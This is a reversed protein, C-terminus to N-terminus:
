LLDLLDGLDIPEFAFLGAMSASPLMDEEWATVQASRAANEAAMLSMNGQPTGCGSEGTCVADPCAIDQECAGEMRMDKGTPALVPSSVLSAPTLHVAAQLLLTFADTGQADLLKESHEERDANLKGVARDTEPRSARRRKCSSGEGQEMTTSRCILPSSSHRILAQVSETM